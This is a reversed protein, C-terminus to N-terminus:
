LLLLAPCQFVKRFEQLWEAGVAGDVTRHDCSLTATVMTAAEVKGNRMVSEQRPEGITLVISQGHGVIGRAFDLDDLFDVTFTPAVPHGSGSVATQAVARLGVADASVVSYEAASGRCMINVDDWMRTATDTWASNAMPVKRMAAASARVVMAEVYNGEEGHEEFGRQAALLADLSLEVSLYYHPIQSVVCLPTYRQDARCPTVSVAFYVVLAM